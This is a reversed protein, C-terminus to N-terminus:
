KRDVIKVGSQVVVKPNVTIIVSVDNGFTEKTSPTISYTAKGAVAGAVSLIQKITNGSGSSAGTVGSQVVTWSFSTNPMSSTLAITTTTGTVISQAKPTATALPIVEPDDNHNCSNLYLSVSFIFLAFIKTKM